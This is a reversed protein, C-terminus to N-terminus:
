CYSNRYRRFAKEPPPNKQRLSRRAPADEDDAMLLRSRVKLAAVIHHYAKDLNALLKSECVGLPNLFHVLADVEEKNVYYGWVPPDTNMKVFLRGGVSNAHAGFFWYTNGKRDKGLPAVRVANRSLQAEFKQLKGLAGSASTANANIMIGGRYLASSSSGFDFGNSAAAMDADNSVEDLDGDPISKGEGLEVKRRQLSLRKSDKEIEREIEMEREKRKMEVEAEWKAKKIEQASDLSADLVKRLFETSLVHQCLLALVSVKEESTLLGFGSQNVAACTDAFMDAQVLAKLYKVMADEWNRLNVKENAGAVLPYLIRLLANMTEDILSLRPERCTLAQEFDDFSFPTLRLSSSFFVVFSWSMLADDVCSSTFLMDTCPEPWPEKREHETGLLLADDLPFRKQRKGPRNSGESAAEDDSIEYAKKRQEAASRLKKVEEPLETPLGYKEILEQDVVEWVAGRYNQKEAISRIKQRLVEKSVIKSDKPRTLDAEALIAKQGSLPGTTYEVECKRGDKSNDELPIYRLLTLSAPKSKKKRLILTEGDVFSEKFRKVLNTVIADLRLHCHHVTRVTVSMYSDPFDDLEKRATEECLLAEEYSLNLRGTVECSFVHQRYFFFRDQYEEYEKFREGTFPIEFYEDGTSLEPEPYPTVRDKNYLPM